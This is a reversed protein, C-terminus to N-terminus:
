ERESPDNGTALLLATDALLEALAAAHQADRHLRRVRGRGFPRAVRTLVLEYLEDQLAYVRARPDLSDDNPDLYPMATADDLVSREGVGLYLVGRLFGGVAPEADHSWRTPM